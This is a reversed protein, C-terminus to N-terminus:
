HKVTLLSRVQRALDVSCSVKGSFLSSVQCSVSSSSLWYITTVPHWEKNTDTNHCHKHQTSTYWTVCYKAKHWVHVHCAAVFYLLMTLTSNLYSGTRTTMTVVNTERVGSLHVRRIDWRWKSVFQGLFKTEPNLSKKLSTFNVIDVSAVMKIIRKLRTFSSLLHVIGAEPGSM